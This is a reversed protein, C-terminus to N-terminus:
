MASSYEWQDPNRDRQCPYRNRAAGNGGRQSIFQLYFVDPIADSVTLCFVAQFHERANRENNRRDSIEIKSWGFWSKRIMDSLNPM